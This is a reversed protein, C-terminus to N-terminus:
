IYRGEKRDVSDEERWSMDVMNRRSSDEGSELKVVGECLCERMERLLMLKEGDELNLLFM